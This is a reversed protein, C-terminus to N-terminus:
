WPVAPLFGGSNYIIRLIRELWDQHTQRIIDLLSAHSFLLGEGSGLIRYGANRLFGEINALNMQFWQLWRLMTLFSPFDESDADGSTVIGDIVGSIVEAEYHKHPVLCDPLENHYRHCEMCRLRRIMLHEKLGGEKKRIRPRTDRYKLTGGCVPCVSTDDSSTVFFV